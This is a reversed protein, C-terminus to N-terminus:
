LYQWKQEGARWKERGWRQDGWFKEMNGQSYTSRRKAAFLSSAPSIPWAILKWSKWDIHDCIVLTVSPCVPPCVVHSRLVACICQLANRPLFWLVGSNMCSATLQDTVKKPLLQVFNSSSQLALSQSTVICRRYSFSTIMSGWVHVATGLLYSVATKIKQLIRLFHPM